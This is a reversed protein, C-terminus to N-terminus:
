RPDPEGQVAGRTSDVCPRCPSVAHTPGRGTQFCGPSTTLSSATSGTGPERRDRAPAKPSDNPRSPPAASRLWAPRPPASSALRLQLTALDAVQDVRRGGLVYSVHEATLPRSSSAALPEGKVAQARESPSQALTGTSREPCGFLSPHSSSGCATGSTRCSTTSARQSSKRGVTSTPSGLARASSANATPVLAVHTVITM